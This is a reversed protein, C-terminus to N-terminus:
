MGVLESLPIVRYIAKVADRDFEVEEAPNFQECVIRTPTRKKLRKIYGESEDGEAKPYLEVVVYDGIAPPRSSSAYIPEGEEFRPWMSSGTVYLGFVDRLTALGPPRRLYDIIQGNFRFDGTEAKGGVAQGLVPIDKPLSRFDVVVPAQALDRASFKGEGEGLLQEVTIDFARALQALHRTSHTRGSELSMIAQQSVGARRGLEAQSLGAATRLTKIREGLIM